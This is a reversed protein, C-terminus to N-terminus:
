YNNTYINYYKITERVCPCSIIQKHKNCYVGMTDRCINDKISMKLYTCIICIYIKINNGRGGMYYYIQEYVRSYDAKSKQFTVMGLKIM